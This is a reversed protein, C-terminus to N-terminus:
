EKPIVICEYEFEENSSLKMLIEYYDTAKKTDKCNLYKSLMGLMFCYRFYSKNHGNNKLAKKILDPEINGKKILKLYDENIEKELGNIM